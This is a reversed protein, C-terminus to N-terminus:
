WPAPSVGAAREGSVTAVDDSSEALRKKAVPPGSRFWRHWPRYTEALSSFMMQLSVTVKIEGPFWM